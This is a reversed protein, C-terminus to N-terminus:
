KGFSSKKSKSPSSRASSIPTGAAQAASKSPLRSSEDHSEDSDGLLPSSADGTNGEDMTRLSNGTRQLLPFVLPEAEDSLSGLGLGL